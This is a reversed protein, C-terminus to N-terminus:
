KPITLLVELQRDSIEFRHMPHGESYKQSVYHTASEKIFPGREMSVLSSVIGKPFYFRAGIKLGSFVVTNKIM